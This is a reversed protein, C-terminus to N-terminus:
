DGILHMHVIMPEHIRLAKSYLRAVDKLLGHSEGGRPAIGVDVAKM